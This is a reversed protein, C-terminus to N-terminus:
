IFLVMRPDIQVKVSLLATALPTVLPGQSGAGGSKSSIPFLVSPCISLRNNAAGMMSSLNAFRLKM